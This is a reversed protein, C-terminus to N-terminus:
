WCGGFRSQWESQEAQSCRGGVRSLPGEGDWTVAVKEPSRVRAARLWFFASAIGLLISSWRILEVAITM